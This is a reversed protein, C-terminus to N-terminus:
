AQKEDKDSFDELFQKAAKRTKPSACDRQNRVFNLIKKKDPYEDYYERFSQIIDSKILDRREPHHHTSEIDLLHQTIKEQLYPKHRAITGANRAIYCATVMSKDDLLDFYLSFIEDFRKNDDIRTLNAIIHCASLKHYTNESKLQSVFFDWRHILRHPEKKSIHSLVKSANYRFTENKSLLADCLTEIFDPAKLVTAAIKEVDIDKVTAIADIFKPDDM